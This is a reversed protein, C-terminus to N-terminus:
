LQWSKHYERPKEYLMLGNSLLQLLFTMTRAM